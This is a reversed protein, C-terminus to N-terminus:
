TAAMGIIIFARKIRKRYLSSSKVDGHELVEDAIIVLDDVGTGIVAILGAVHSLDLNFNFAAAFGLIAVVEALGTFVMPIAIRPDRYRFFIVFGVAFVAVVGIVLSFKKFREGQIPSITTSSVVEVPTPLAGSRLSVSVLQGQSQNLGTVSLGGGNWRGQQINNALSGSLPGSFIQRGNFFMVLPHATPNTTANYRKVAQTFKQAGEDTLEFQVNYTTRGRQQQRLPASVEGKKVAEGYIVHATGNFSTTANEPRASQNTVIRIEFRGQTQIIEAISSANEREGPVEVIVFSEGTLLNSRVSVTAGAGAGLTETLRTGIASSLQELTQQTVSPQIEGQLRVGANRLATRVNSDSVNGRVEFVGSNRNTRGPYFQVPVGLSESVNDDFQTVNDVGSVRVTKGVASLQLRTGGDLQLGFSLSTPGQAGGTPAVSFVSLVVVVVLLLIRWDTALNKADVM